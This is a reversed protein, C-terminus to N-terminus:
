KLTVVTKITTDKYNLYNIYFAKKRAPSGDPKTVTIRQNLQLDSLIQNTHTVLFRNRITFLYLEINNRPKAIYDILMDKFQSTKPNHEMSDFLSPAKPLSWGRGEKEDIHWKAQLM